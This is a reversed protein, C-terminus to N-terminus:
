STIKLKWAPQNMMMMKMLIDVDLDPDVDVLAHVSPLTWIPSAEGHPASLSPSASHDEVQSSDTQAHVDPVLDLDLDCHATVDRVMVSYHYLLSM